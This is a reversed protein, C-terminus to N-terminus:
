NKDDKFGIEWQTGDCFLKNKSSGYRCLTCHENSVEEARNDHGAVRIGGM